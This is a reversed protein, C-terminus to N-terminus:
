KMESIIDSNNMIEDKQLWSDERYRDKLTKYNSLKSSNFTVSNKLANANTYLYGM